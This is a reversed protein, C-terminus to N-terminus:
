GNGVEIDACENDSDTKWWQGNHKFHIWRGWTRDVYATVEQGNVKLSANDWARGFCRTMRPCHSRYIPYKM